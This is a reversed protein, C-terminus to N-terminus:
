TGPTLKNLIEISKGVLADARENKERLTKVQQTLIAVELDTQQGANRATARLNAVGNELADLEKFIQSKIDTVIQM